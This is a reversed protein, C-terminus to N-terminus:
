ENPALFVVVGNGRYMLDAAPAPSSDKSAAPDPKRLSIRGYVVAWRDYDPTGFRFNGLSTHQRLDAFKRRLAVGDLEFDAPPKPADKLDETLWLLPSVSSKPTCAQESLWRGASRFSYRGLVAVDKGTYSTLDHLIECVTTPVLPTGAALASSCLVLLWSFAKCWNM